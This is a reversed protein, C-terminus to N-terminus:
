IASVMTREFMNFSDQSTYEVLMDMGSDGAVMEDAIQETFSTNPHGLDDVAEKHALEDIDLVEIEITDEVEQHALEDIDLVEIEIADLSKKLNFSHSSSLAGLLTPAQELDSKSIVSSAPIIENTQEQSKHAKGRALRHMRCFLISALLIGFGLVVAAVIILNLNGENAEPESTERGGFGSIWVNDLLRSVVLKGDEIRLRYQEGDSRASVTEGLAHDFRLPTELIISGFGKVKNVEETLGGVDIAVELGVEFGFTSAM